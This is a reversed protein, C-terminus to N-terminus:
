QLKNQEKLKDIAEEKERIRVQMKSKQQELQALQKQCGSLESKIKDNSEVLKTKSDTLSLIEKKLTELVKEQDKFRYQDKNLNDIKEQLCEIHLKM